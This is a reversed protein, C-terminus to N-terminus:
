ESYLGDGVIRVPLDSHGTSDIEAQPKQETNFQFQMRDTKM